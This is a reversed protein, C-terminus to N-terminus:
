YDSCAANLVFTTIILVSEDDLTVGPLCFTNNIADLTSHFVEFSTSRCIRGLIKVYLYSERGVYAYDILSAYLASFEVSPGFKWAKM